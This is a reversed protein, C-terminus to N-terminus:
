DGDELFLYHLYVQRYRVGDVEILTFNYTNYFAANIFKYLNDLMDIIAYSNSNNIATIMPKVKIAKETISYTGNPYYQNIYYKTGGTGEVVVNENRCIYNGSDQILFALYSHPTSGNYNFAIGYLINNKSFTYCVCEYRSVNLITTYSGGADGDYVIASSSGSTQEDGRKFIEVYMYTSNGSGSNEFCVYYDEFGDIEYVDRVGQTMPYSDVFHINDYSTLLDRLDGQILDVVAYGPSTGEGALTTTIM